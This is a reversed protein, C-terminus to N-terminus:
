LRALKKLTKRYQAIFGDLLKKQQEYFIESDVGNVEDLQLERRLAALSNPEVESGEGGYWTQTKLTRRRTRGLLSPAEIARRVNMRNGVRALELECGFTVLVRRLQHWKLPREGRRISRSQDRIWCAVELVERDSIADYAQLPPLLAHRATQLTKKFLENDSCTLTMGNEDLFVLLGVLATRKNGNYFPHNHILSHFLAAGAMEVTPYKVVGGYESRPRLVASELLGRDRPGPPSIPDDGNSFDHVLAWHVAEIQDTSLHKVDRVRGVVRWELQPAEPLLLKQGGVQFNGSTAPKSRLLVGLSGRPITRADNSLRFGHERLLDALDTRSRGLTRCWYDVRHQNNAATAGIALQAKDVDRAHVTSKPSTLYSLGADWLQLLVAELDLQAQRALQEVSIARKRTM